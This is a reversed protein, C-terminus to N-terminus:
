NTARDALYEKVVDPLYEGWSGSAAPLDTREEYVEASASDNGLQEAVEDVEDIVRMLNGGILGIIQEDTWGRAIMEAILDPYKSADELGKVSHEM